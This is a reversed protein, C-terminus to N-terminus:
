PSVLLGILVCHGTCTSLAASKAQRIQCAMGAIGHVVELPRKTILYPAGISSRREGALEGRNGPGIEDIIVLLYALLFGVRAEGAAKGVVRQCDGDDAAETGEAGRLGSLFGVAGAVGGRQVM